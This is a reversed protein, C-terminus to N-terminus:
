GIVQSHDGYTNFFRRIDKGNLCHGFHIGSQILSNFSKRDKGSWYKYSEYALIDSPEFQCAEEKSLWSLSGMLRKKREKRNFSNWVRPVIRGLRSGTELFYAIPESYGNKRSWAQTKKLCDIVCITYAGVMIDRPKWSPRFDAFKDTRVSVSVGYALNNHIIRILKKLLKIRDNGSLKDFEKKRNEYDTMHFCSLGFRSLCQRWQKEFTIWMEAPSLYGAVALVKSEAHTGSEDLYTALRM